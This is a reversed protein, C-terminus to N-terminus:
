VLTPGKSKNADRLRRELYKVVSERREDEEDRGGKVLALEGPPGSRECAELEHHDIWSRMRAKVEQVSKSSFKASMPIVQPFIFLFLNQEIVAAFYQM